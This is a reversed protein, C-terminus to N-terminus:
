NVLLWASTQLSFCQYFTLCKCVIKNLDDLVFDWYAQIFHNLNWGYLSITDTITIFALFIFTPVKRMKKRTCVYLCLLNSCTGLCVLLISWIGLVHNLIVDVSMDKEEKYLTKLIKKCLNIM